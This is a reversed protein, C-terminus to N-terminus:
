MATNLLSLNNNIIFGGPKKMLVAPTPDGM